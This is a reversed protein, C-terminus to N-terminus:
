YVSPLVEQPQATDETNLRPLIPMNTEHQTGPEPVPNVECQVDNIFCQSCYASYLRGGYVLGEEAMELIDSAFHEDMVMAEYNVRIEELSTSHIVGGCRPCEDTCM